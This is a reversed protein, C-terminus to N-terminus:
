KIADKCAQSLQSKHAIMCSRIAQYDGSHSSCYRLFDPFCAAKQDESPPNGAYLPLALAVTLITQSLNRMPNRGARQQHDSARAQPLFVKNQMEVMRRLQDARSCLIKYVNPMGLRAAFRSVNSFSVKLDRAIAARQEGARLRREIELRIKPPVKM